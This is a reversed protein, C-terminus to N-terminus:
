QPFLANLPSLLWNVVGPGFGTMFLIGGIVLLLCLLKYIGYSSGAGLNREFFELRPFTNTMAFNYRLGLTGIVIALLGFFIRSIM